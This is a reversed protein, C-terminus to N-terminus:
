NMFRQWDYWKENIFELIKNEFVSIDFKKVHNLISNKDFKHKDFSNIALKLSKIDQKDFLIGTKEHIITEKAGGENLAIVPRGSAMAELPVIGFDEIQPFILAKAKSYYKKLDEENVYGLFEINPKAIQKLRIVEEGTGFIKLPLNLENFAEVLLDFKKYATLRGGALFYHETENSTVFDSVKIPPYIVKADRKYYKKIKEKIFNSNAMYFDVRDAALRDWLRLKHLFHPVTKKVLWNTNYKKLYDQWEDWVYRMPTHCYCIHLTNPKTIVGKSCAFTSSIVIDFESLDFREYAHPMFSIYFQHKKKSFPLNQIFSTRIDANEYGRMKEKNYICTFIPANPFMNHLALNVREAGGFNTLWDCVIAIKKNKINM